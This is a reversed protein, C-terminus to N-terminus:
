GYLAGARAAKARLRREKFVSGSKRTKAWGPAGGHKAPRPLRPGVTLYTQALSNV